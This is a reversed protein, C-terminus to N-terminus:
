RPFDYDTVVAHPNKGDIFKPEDLDLDNRFPAVEVNAYPAVLTFEIIRAKTDAIIGIFCDKEPFWGFIRLDATKLEWIGDQVYNLPKFHWDFTLTEGSCFVAVLEDFQGLPSTELGRDSELTPLTDTIWTALKPGLYIRRLEQQPPDLEPDLKELTGRIELDIVTAM